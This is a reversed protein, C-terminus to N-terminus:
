RCWLSGRKCESNEHKEIFFGHVDVPHPLQDFPPSFIFNNVHDLGVAKVLCNSAELSLAQEDCPANVAIAITGLSRDILQCICTFCSENPPSSIHKGCGRTLKGFKGSRDGDKRNECRFVREGLKLLSNCHEFRLDGPMVRPYGRRMKQWAQKPEFNLQEMSLRRSFKAPDLRNSSVKSGSTQSPTLGPQLLSDFFESLLGAIFAFSDLPHRLARCWMDRNNSRARTTQSKGTNQMEVINM